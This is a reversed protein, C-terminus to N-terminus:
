QDPALVKMTPILGIHPEGTGGQTTAREFIKKSLIGCCSKARFSSGCKKCRHKVKKTSVVPVQVDVGGKAGNSPITEYTTTTEEGEITGSCGGLGCCSTFASSLLAMALLM